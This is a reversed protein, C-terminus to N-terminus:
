HHSLFITLYIRSDKQHDDEEKQSGVLCQQRLRKKTFLNVMITLQLTDRPSQLVITVCKSPLKVCKNFSV